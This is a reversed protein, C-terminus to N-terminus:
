ITENYCNDVCMELTLIWKMNRMLCLKSCSNTLGNVQTLFHSPMKSENYCLIINRNTSGLINNVLTTDYIDFSSLNLFKLSSTFIFLNNLNNMKRTNFNSVDLYQLSGCGWFMHDVNTVLSTNFHTFGFFDLCQM